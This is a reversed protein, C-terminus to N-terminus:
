YKEEIYKGIDQIAKLDKFGQYSVRRLEDNQQEKL